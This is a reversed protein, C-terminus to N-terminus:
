DDLVVRNSQDAPLRSSGKQAALIAEYIAAHGDDNPHVDAPNLLATGGNDLMYNYLDAFFLDYDIRLGAVRM